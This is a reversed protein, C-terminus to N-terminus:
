RDYALNVVQDINVKMYYVTRANRQRIFITEDRSAFETWNGVDTSGFGTFSMSMERGNVDDSGDVYLEFDTGGRGTNLSTNAVKNGDAYLALEGSEGGFHATSIDGEVIYPNDPEALTDLKEDSFNSEALDSEINDEVGLLFGVYGIVSFALVVILVSAVPSDFVRDLVSGDQGIDM